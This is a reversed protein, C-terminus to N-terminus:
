VSTTCGARGLGHMDDRWPTTLVGDTYCGPEIDFGAEISARPGCVRNGHIRCDFTPDGEVPVCPGDFRACVGTYAPSDEVVDVVHGTLMQGAAIVLAIITTTM